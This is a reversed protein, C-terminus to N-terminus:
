DFLRDQGLVLRAIRSANAPEIDEPVDQGTTLYSFPLSVERSVSVLSGMGAAEDLKTLVLATPNVPQFQECTMKISRVSATLSMVLHVEDVDAEGLMQKLEQIKLEDRPSRGATDILVLDLDALEDLARRMEQPSTVVKMPLDIIEAYTRLQEVAAIRYTDVTVLGMRIGDRLRFNAALKAITTTKGVGTPGVLAVVKRRGTNPQIPEAISVESEVRASLLSRCAAPDHLQAPSCMKRLGFVLERALDDEIDADILDTYVDFLETPIEETGRFQSTRTLNEMMRQLADLKAAVDSDDNGSSAPNLERISQAAAALGAAQNVPAEVSENDTRTESSTESVPPEPETTEPHSAQVTSELNSLSQQLRAKEANRRELEAALQAARAVPSLTEPSAAVPVDDITVDLKSGAGGVPAGNGNSVAPSGAPSPPENTVAPQSTAHERVNVGVGVTVEVQDRGKLFPILRRQTVHRTHLIVADVGVEKRVIALAEQMSAARYTRVESM